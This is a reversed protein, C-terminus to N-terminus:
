IVLKSKKVKYYVKFFHSLVINTMHLYTTYTMSLACIYVCQNLKQM